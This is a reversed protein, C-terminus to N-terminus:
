YLAISALRGGCVSSTTFLSNASPGNELIAGWVGSNVVYHHAIILLMVLVRFLELNSDRHKQQLVEGM